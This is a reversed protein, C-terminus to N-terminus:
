DVIFEWANQIIPISDSNIAELYNQLMNCFMLPTLNVGNLQKPRCHNIIKDRLVYLKNKFIQRIDEHRLQNVMQLQQETKVPRELTVCDREKFYNLLASRVEDNDATSNKQLAHELYESASIANGQNDKLELTFDRLIWLFKPIYYSLSYQNDQNNPNIQINAALKSVLSLTQISEEDICGISNYIFYSSMLVSLTFIKIDYEEHKDTSDCGESDLFFIYM